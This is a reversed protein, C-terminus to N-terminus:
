SLVAVPLLLRVRTPFYIPSIFENFFSRDCARDLLVICPVFWGVLGGSGLRFPGLTLDLGKSFSVRLLGGGAVCQVEYMEQPVPFGVVDCVLPWQRFGVYLQTAAVGRTDHCGEVGHM